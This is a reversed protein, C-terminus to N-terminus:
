PEPAPENSAFILKISYMTGPEFTTQTLPISYRRSGDRLWFIANQSLSCPPVMLRYHKESYKYATYTGDTTIAPGLQSSSNRVGGPASAGPLLRVKVRKAVEDIQAVGIIKGNYQKDCSSKSYYGYASGYKDADAYYNGVVVEAQDINPMGELTLYVASTLPDAVETETGEADTITKKLGSDDIIIDLCAMKHQFSFHVNTGGTQMITQAWLVDSALHNKLKRQDHHFINTQQTFLSKNILFHKEESWTEATFVYPTQQAEHWSSLAPSNSPKYDSNIDFGDGYVVPTWAVDSSGGTAKLFYFGDPSGSETSEGRQVGNAFPCIIKVRILDGVNFANGEINVRSSLDGEFPVVSSTVELPREEAPLTETTLDDATCAVFLLSLFIYSLHKM